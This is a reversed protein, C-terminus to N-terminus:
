PTSPLSNTRFAGPEERIFAGLYDDRVYVTRLGLRNGIPDISCATLGRCHGTVEQLVLINFSSMLFAASNPSPLIWMM